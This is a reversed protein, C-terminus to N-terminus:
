SVYISPENKKLEKNKLSEEVNSKERKQRDIDTRRKESIEAPQSLLREFEEKTPEINLMKKAEDALHLIYATETEGTTSLNGGEMNGIIWNIPMKVTQNDDLKVDVMSNLDRVETAGVVTLLAGNPIIKGKIRVGNEGVKLPAEKLNEVLSKVIYATTDGKNFDEENELTPDIVDEEDQDKMPWITVRDMPEESNVDIDEQATKFHMDIEEDSWGESKLAERKSVKKMASRYFGGTGMNTLDSWNKSAATAMNPLGANDTAQQAMTTLTESYGQIGETLSAVSSVLAELASKIESAISFTETEEAQGKVEKFQSKDKKDWAVPAINEDYNKLKKIGAPTRNELSKKEEEVTNKKNFIDEVGEPTNPVEVLNKFVTMKSFPALALDFWRNLRVSFKRLFTTLAEYSVTERNSYEIGVLTNEMQVVVAGLQTMGDHLKAKLEKCENVLEITKVDKSAEAKATLEAIAQNLENQRKSIETEKEKLAKWAETMEPTAKKVEPKVQAKRTPDGPMGVLKAERKMAKKKNAVMVEQDNHEVMPEGNQLLVVPEGAARGYGKVSMMKYDEFCHTAENEDSGQYVSGINGVIVEFEPMGTEESDRYGCAEKKGESKRFDEEFREPNACDECVTEGRPTTTGCERCEGSKNPCGKEHCPTGNIISPACQSCGVYVKGADINSSDFGYQQLLALKDEPTLKIERQAKKNTAEKKVPNGSQFIAYGKDLLQEQVSTVQYDMFAWASEIPRSWTQFKGSEDEWSGGFVGEEGVKEAGLIGLCPAETLAGIDEPNVWSFESNGIFGEMIDYMFSDSDFDPDEAKEEALQKRGEESITLKLNGNPLISSNIGYVDTQAKRPMLIAKKASCGFQDESAFFKGGKYSVVVPLTKVEKVEDNASAMRIEYNLSAENQDEDTWNGDKAIVELAGMRWDMKATKTLFHSGQRLLANILDKEQSIFRAGNSAEKIPRMVMSYDVNTSKLKAALAKRENEFPSVFKKDKM